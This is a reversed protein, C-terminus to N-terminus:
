NFRAQTRELGSADLAEVADAARSVIAEPDDHPEFDSLVYDALSRRDGRGPRGVGDLREVGGAELARLGPEVLGAM